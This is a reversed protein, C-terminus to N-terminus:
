SSCEKSVGVQSHRAIGRGVIDRMACRELVAAAWVSRRTRNHVRRNGWQYYRLRMVITKVRVTTTEPHSSAHVSTTM